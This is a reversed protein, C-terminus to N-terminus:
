ELSAVAAPNWANPESDISSGEPFCNENCVKLRSRTM